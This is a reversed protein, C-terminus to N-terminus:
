PRRGLEAAVRSAEFRIIEDLRERRQLARDDNSIVALIAGTEADVIRTNLRFRGFRDVFSGTVAYRARARRAAQAARAADLHGTAAEGDASADVAQVGPQRNLEAALLAPIQKRLREAAAAEDGFSDHTEFALVAVTRPAQAAAPAGTALAALALAAAAGPHLIAASV